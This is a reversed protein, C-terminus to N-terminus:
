SNEKRAKHSIWCSWLSVILMAIWFVLFAYSQWMTVGHSREFAIRMRTTDISLISACIWLISMGFSFLPKRKM